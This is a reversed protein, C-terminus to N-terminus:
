VPVTLEELNMMAQYADILKERNNVYAIYPTLLFPHRKTQFYRIREESNMGLSNLLHQHKEFFHLYYQTELLKIFPAAVLRQMCDDHIRSIVKPPLVQYGFLLKLQRPNDHVIMSTGMGRLHMYKLDVQAMEQGKALFTCALDIDEVGVYYYEDYGGVALYDEKRLFLPVAKGYVVPGYIDSEAAVARVKGQLGAQCKAIWEEDYILCDDHFLAVYEGKAERVGKNYGKAICGFESEIVRCDGLKERDVGVGSYVVIIEIPVGQSNHIISPLLANRAFVDNFPVLVICSVLPKEANRYTDLLRPNHYPYDNLYCFFENAAADLDEQATALVLESSDPGHHLITLTPSAAVKATAERLQKDLWFRPPYKLRLEGPRLDIEFM